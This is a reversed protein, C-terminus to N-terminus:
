IKIKKNVSNPNTALEDNLEKVSIYKPIFEIIELIETKSNPIDRLGIGLNIQKTIEDFMDKNYAGQEIALPVYDINGFKIIKEIIGYGMKNMAKAHINPQSM